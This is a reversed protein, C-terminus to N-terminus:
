QQPILSVFNENNGPSFVAEVFRLGCSNAYWQQVLGLSPPVVNYGYASMQAVQGDDMSLYIKHCGDYHMAKANRLMQEVIRWKSM